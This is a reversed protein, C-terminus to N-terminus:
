LQVDRTNCMRAVPSRSARTRVRGQCVALSHCLPGDSHETWVPLPTSTTKPHYEDGHVRRSFYKPFSKDTTPVSVILFEIETEIFWVTKTYQDQSTSSTSIKKRRCSQVYSPRGMDLKKSKTADSRLKEKSCTYLLSTCM